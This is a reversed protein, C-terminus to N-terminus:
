RVPRDNGRDHRQCASQVHFHSGLAHFCRFLKFIEPVFTDILQLAVQEAFRTRRFIQFQCVKRAIVVLYRASQPGGISALLLNSKVISPLSAESLRPRRAGTHSFGAGFHGKALDGVRRRDNPIARHTKKSRLRALLTPLAVIEVTHTLALPNTSVQSLSETTPTRAPKAM